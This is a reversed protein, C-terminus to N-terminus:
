CELSLELGFLQGALLECTFSSWPFVLLARRCKGVVCGSRVCGYRAVNDLAEGLV